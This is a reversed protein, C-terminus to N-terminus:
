FDGTTFQGIASEYVDWANDRDTAVVKWYYTTNAEVEYADYFNNSGTDISQLDAAAVSTSSDATVLASGETGMPSDGSGGCATLLGGLLLVAPALRLAPRWGATRPRTLFFTLLAAIILLAPLAPIQRDGRLPPLMPLGANTVQDRDTGYYLTYTVGSADEWDFMIPYPENSSNKGPALLAPAWRTSVVNSFASENGQADYATVVIYYTEGDILGTLDTSLRDGIDVPSVGNEAAVGDFPPNPDGEKYYVKYGTVSPSPSPDWSLTVNQSFATATTLYLVLTLLMVVQFLKM